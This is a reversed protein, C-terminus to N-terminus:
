LERKLFQSEDKLPSMVYNIARRETDIWAMVVEVKYMGSARVEKQLTIFAEQHVPDYQALQGDLRDGYTNPLKIKKYTLILAAGGTLLGIVFPVFGTAKMAFAGAVAVIGVATGILLSFTARPGLNSKQTMHLTNEIENLANWKSKLTGSWNSKLAPGNKNMIM